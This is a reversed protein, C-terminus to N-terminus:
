TLPRVQYKESIESTWNTKYKNVTTTHRNCVDNLM